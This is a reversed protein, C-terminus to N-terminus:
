VNSNLVDEPAMRADAGSPLAGCYVCARYDTAFLNPQMGFVHSTSLSCATQIRAREAKIAEDEVRMREKVYVHTRERLSNTADVIEQPTMAHINTNMAGTKRSVPAM